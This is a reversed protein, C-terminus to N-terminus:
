HLTRSVADSKRGDGLQVVDREETRLAEVSPRYGEVNRMLIAQVAPMDRASMAQRLQDLEQRMDKASLFPEDSKFIRPHETTQTNRGILLEEYLKEGPRLGTYVIAIDGNPNEEDRVELNSLRVMLRALDDIRVPDGMQLVFVEGGKAMAGAQIVLEAAEPISMFYRTVDPHTVTVPGGARIQQRFRPVVSGSSDLVNGFRVVTFVTDSQEAAEGQLILEALRKSAGMCNTPRVAKDTSVLVFRDIGHALAADVVVRTGLVNNDLGSIPNHEVIPVHKYAAAHYITEIRHDVIVEDVLKADLVSGLVARVLPRPAEVPLKALTETVEMEIKYLAPESIDFLVLHRPSQRVIQRVLESGISGGAGTVLISKDRISRAMLDANPKVPDRGLLDGIEVDRLDNVGVHGAAFDEYAPLIKVSVPLPELQKLVERRQTGPLAVLVECIDHREILRPLRQPAYVKVGNIYQRWLTPSPDVFGVVSRDRARRVNALLESGMRGAGYIITPKLPVNLPVRPAPLVVSDLLLKIAYRSLAILAAGGVAYLPILSRPVGNQGSLFVLLSWVLTGLGVGLVIQTVGRYGIYRTVLRYVDFWWLCCVVLLPASIMLGLTVVSAPVYLEGLRVSFSLWIAFSLLLLDIVVLAARKHYRPKELLWTRLRSHVGSSKHTFKLASKVNM